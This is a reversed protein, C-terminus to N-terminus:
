NIYLIDSDEYLFTYNYIDSDEYLNAILDFYLTIQAARSHFLATGNIYGAFQVKNGCKLLDIKSILCDKASAHM